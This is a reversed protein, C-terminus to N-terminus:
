QNIVGQMRVLYYLMDQVVPKVGYPDFLMNKNSKSFQDWKLFLFSLAKTVHKFFNSTTTPM